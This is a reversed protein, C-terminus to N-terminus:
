NVELCGPFGHFDARRSGSSISTGFKSDITQTKEDEREGEGAGGKLWGVRWRKESLPVSQQTKVVCTRGRSTYGRGM